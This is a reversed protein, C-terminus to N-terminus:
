DGDGNLYPRPRIRSSVAYAAVSGGLAGLAVPVNVEVITSYIAVIIGFAAIVTLIRLVLNGM